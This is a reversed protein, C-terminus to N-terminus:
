LGRLCYSIATRQVPTVAYSPRSMTMRNRVCSALVSNCCATKLM